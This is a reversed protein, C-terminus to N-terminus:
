PSTAVSNTTYTLEGDSAIYTVHVRNLSDVAISTNGIGVAALNDSTWVGGGNTAHKLLNTATHDEYAIHVDGVSDVVIECDYGVDGNSDVKSAVWSSSANTAYELDNDAFDHFYAIHANGSSDIGISTTHATNVPNGSHLDITSAAWSGSDNSLYRLDNSSSEIFSIHISDSSGIALDCNNGVTGPVLTSVDTSSWAGGISNAYYLAGGLTYCAHAAGMSDIALSISGMWDMSEQITGKVTSGSSVQLYQIKEAVPPANVKHALYVLDNSDIAIAVRYADSFFFTVTGEELLEPTLAQGPQLQVYSLSIRTEGLGADFIDQKYAVHPTDSSDLAIAAYRVDRAVLAQTRFGARACAADSQTSEKGAADVASVTYCYSTDEQLSSDDYSANNADALYVDNRYIRYHSVVGDDTSVTWTLTANTQGNAVTLRADVNTPVTPDEMDAPLTVCSESSRASENGAADYASVAYCHTSGPVVANDVIAIGASSTLQVGDRFVNYGDVRINDTSANWSLEVEAPSIATAALGSPTSPTTTDAQTTACATNSMTNGTIPNKIVFCFETSPSLGAIDFTLASTSGVTATSQSDNRAVVYPSVSVGGSPPTWTLTIATPSTAQASLSISGSLLINGNDDGGGGGCAALVSTALLMLLLQRSFGRMSDRM